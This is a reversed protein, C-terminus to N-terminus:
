QARDLPLDDPVEVFGILHEPGCQLIAALKALTKTTIAQDHRIRQLTRNDIGQNALYYYSVGNQKMYDRLPAFTCITM